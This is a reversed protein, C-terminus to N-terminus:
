LIPLDFGSEVPDPLDDAVNDVSNGKSQSSTSLPTSGRESEQKITMVSFVLILLIGSLLTAMPIVWGDGSVTSMGAFAVVLLSAGLLLIYRSNGTM